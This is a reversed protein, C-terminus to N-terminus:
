TMFGFNQSNLNAIYRATCLVHIGGNVEILPLPLDRSNGPGEAVSM